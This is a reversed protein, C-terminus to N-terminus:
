PTYKGDELVKDKGRSLSIGLGIDLSSRGRHHNRDAKHNRCPCVSHSNIEYRSVPVRGILNACSGNSDLVTPSLWRTVIVPFFVNVLRSFYPPFVDHLKIYGQMSGLSGLNREERAIRM